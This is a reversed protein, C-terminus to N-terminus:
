PEYFNTQTRRRGARASSSEYSSSLSTSDSHAYADPSMPVNLYFNTGDLETLHSPAPHSSNVENSGPNEPELHNDAWERSHALLALLQGRTIYGSHVSDLGRLRQYMRGRGM